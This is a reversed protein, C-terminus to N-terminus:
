DEAIEKQKKKSLSNLVLQYSKDLLDKLLEDPVSGDPNISNWHTKNMYYGPIIDEYEKRLFDSEIPDSKLTIYHPKNDNDLCIATFMKDGIHYRIWNWEPKFDKTVGKKTLLYEDIWEYRM